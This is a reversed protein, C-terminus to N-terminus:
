AYIQVLSDTILNVAPGSTVDFVVDLFANVSPYERVIWHWTATSLGTSVKPCMSVPAGRVLLSSNAIYQSTFRRM